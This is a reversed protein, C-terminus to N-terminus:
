KRPQEKESKQPKPFNPSKQNTTELNARIEDLNAEEEKLRSSLQSLHKQNDIPLHPKPLEDNPWNELDICPCSGTKAGSHNLPIPMQCRPCLNLEWDSTLLEEVTQETGQLYCQGTAASLIEEWCSEFESSFKEQQLVSTPQRTERGNKIYVKKGALFWYALYNKVQQQSAM